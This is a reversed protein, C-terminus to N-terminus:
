CPKIKRPNHLQKSKEEVSKKISSIVNMQTSPGFNEFIQDYTQNGEYASKVWIEQEISLMDTLRRAYTNIDSKDDEKFRQLFRKLLVDITNNVFVQHLLIGNEECFKRVQMAGNPEVVVVGNKGKAIVDDFAKRTVGYYNDGVTVCEIMSKSKILKEFDVPKIFNYNIGDIEGARAPRTTTSVLEDFGETKLLSALVSKGTLSPGTVTVLINKNNM